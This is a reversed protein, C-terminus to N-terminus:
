SCDYKLPKTKVTNYNNKIQMKNVELNDNELKTKPVYEETLEKLIDVMEGTNNEAKFLLGLPVKPFYFIIYYLSSVKTSIHKIM